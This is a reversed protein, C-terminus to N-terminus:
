VILPMVEKGIDVSILQFLFAMGTAPMAQNKERRIWIPVPQKAMLIKSTLAKVHQYNQGM